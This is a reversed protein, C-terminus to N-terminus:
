IDINIIKRIFFAALGILGGALFLAIWGKWTHFLSEFMAPAVFYLGYYSRIAYM